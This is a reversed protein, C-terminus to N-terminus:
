DSLVTGSFARDDLHQGAQETGVRALDQDVAVRDRQGRRVLGRQEADGENVL